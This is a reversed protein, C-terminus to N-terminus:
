KKRIYQPRNQTLVKYGSFGNSFSYYEHRMVENIIENSFPTPFMNTLTLKNLGKFDVCIRLKQPDHNKPQIVMSIEWESKKIPYIIGGALMGDIEKQVIPKYKHALKYPWKKIPKEGQTLNIKV